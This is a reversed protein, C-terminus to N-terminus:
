AQNPAPLVVAARNDIQLPRGQAAAWGGIAALYDPDDTDDCLITEARAGLATFFGMRGGFVRPPGDVFAFAFREPLAALDDGLEYWGGPGIPSTVIAINDVGAQRALAETRAAYEPAHELCWVRQAPAAAAMLVTSLGSGVELIPGSASRVLGVALRLIERDAAWPNGYAKFAEAYFDPSEGGTRIRDAIYRLTLGGQRRLASGLSDVSLTKGCHGLRLETAAFVKGGLARWRRCFNIDGGWREGDELSREFLLPHTEGGRRYHPAAAALREIVCRRIRLFGTPLGEVEVLGAQPEAGALGRVPMGESAERRYPYVGGVVDRDFGCLAILAAPEWSVDADLFVLESADSALFAQAVANRADDVHCNGALIFYASPLGARHLAERSRAISFTYSVDPSDYVTTALFVKRGAQPPPGSDHFVASM